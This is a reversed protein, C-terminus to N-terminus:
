RVLIQICGASNGAATLEIRRKGKGPDTDPYLWGNASFVGYEM